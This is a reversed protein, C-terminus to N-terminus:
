IVNSENADTNKILMKMGREIYLLAAKDASQDNGYGRTNYVLESNHGAAKTKM